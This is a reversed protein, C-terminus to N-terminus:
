PTEPLKLYLETLPGRAQWGCGIHQIVLISDSYFNLNKMGMKLALKLDIINAEYDLDNSTAKFSFHIASMLNHGELIVLLIGAGVGENYTPFELILDALAQVKLVGRPKYDM